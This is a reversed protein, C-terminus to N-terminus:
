RTAQMSLTYTQAPYSRTLDGILTDGVLSLVGDARVRKGGIGYGAILGVFGGSPDVDGSITRTMTDPNDGVFYYSGSVVGATDITLRVTGRATYGADDSVTEACTGTYVGAYVSDAPPVTNGDGNGSDHCGCLAATLLLCLTLRM